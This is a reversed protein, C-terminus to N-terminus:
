RAVVYRLFWARAWLWALPIWVAFVAAAVGVQWMPVAEGTMAGRILALAGHTPIAWLLPSHWVGFYDMLPLFLPALFFGAVILYRNLVEFRAAMAVGLLSFLVATPAVGLLLLGWHVGLGVGGLAIALATVVGMATLSLTKAALYETPRLPTAWLSVLAGDDREYIILGGVFFYPMVAPDTFLVLPGLVDCWSEPLLRLLGIYFLTVFGYAIWFGHRGQMRLDHATCAWARGSM